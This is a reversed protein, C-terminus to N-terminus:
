FAYQWGVTATWDTGLGYGNREQWLPARLELALRHNQLPGDPIVFNAGVSAEIRQGGYNEGFATPVSRGPGAALGVDSQNGSLENEWLYSLGGSVSVWEAVRWAAWGDLRFSDGLRYGHANTRTHYVGSAQVGASWGDALYTYTLSPMIDITGSGNQMAAPLQRSLRGGPGPLIDKEGISGTPLSLGLGMHLHHQGDDILSILSSLRLDGIGDSKTTFTSSGGNLGVLPALGIRHDMERSLYPLMASLTLRDTPAYMLGLMHMEMTMSTPSVAYGGAFVEAPSVSDSGRYIGDMGMSMYRYSLMWEGAKHTHDGMISIPAHGDPRAHKTHHDEAHAASSLTTAIAIIHKHFKM